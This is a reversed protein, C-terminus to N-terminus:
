GTRKIIFLTADDKLKEGRGFDYLERFVSDVIVAPQEGRLERVIDIVRDKGFMQSDYNRSELIGDTLMVLIDGPDIFAFGR